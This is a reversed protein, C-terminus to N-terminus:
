INITQLMNKFHSLFRITTSLVQHVLNHGFNSYFPVFPVSLRTWSILTTGSYLEGRVKLTLTM